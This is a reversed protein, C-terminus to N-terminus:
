LIGGPIWINFEEQGIGQKESKTKEGSLVRCAHDFIQAGVEEITRTGDMIVGANIDMDDIMHEYIQTTTVIKITPAPISGYCSGNGTTFIIVNAGGGILGTCAMPDYGPTDMFSFGRGIAEAYEYVAKLETTGGKLIAGVSKEADTTIGRVRNGHSPNAEPSCDFFEMYRKWWNMRELFKRGVDEKARRLLDQEVDWAETTESLCAGGGHRVVTDSFVGVAPNATTASNGDSGGCQLGALIHSTPVDVRSVNNIDPLQEALMDVAYDITKQVGGKQQITVFDVNQQPENMGALQILKPQFTECGLSVNLVKGFGPHRRYGSLTRQINKFLMGGTKIGCGTAQRFSLVGDINPYSGLDDEVKKQLAAAIRGATHNGCNVSTTIGIFNRFGVGGNERVYGKLTGTLPSLPDPIEHGFRYEDDRRIPEMNHMHVHAGSCIEATARGVEFGGLIIIDGNSITKTAIKQGPQRSPTTQQEEDRLNSVQLTIGCPSIEDGARVVEGTRCVNDGTLIQISKKM